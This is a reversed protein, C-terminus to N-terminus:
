YVLKQGVFIKDPNKINNKAILHAQSVKLNSAIKGLYDGIKVTYTRTKAVAPKAKSTANPLLLVEGVKLLNKNTISTYQVKLIENLNVNHKKAIASLNDGSKVKYYTMGDLAGEKEYKNTPQITTSITGNTGPRPTGPDTGGGGSGTGTWDLEAIAKRAFAQRAPMSEEGAQQNPREYGWTFARTLADVSLGRSNTRFEKFTLNDISSRPIWQINADVEYDIRALQSYGSRPEMNNSEAWNWYKSRPTWQVLGFGRDASWDYGYEYMNPNISSEHRMNGCLAAISEKTWDTGKFHNAVMQANNLSESESLWRRYETIWPM